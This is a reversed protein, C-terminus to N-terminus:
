TRSSTQSYCEYTEVLVLKCDTEKKMILSTVESFGREVLYSSPFAMLLKQVTAWLAPYLISIQKQIWFKHYGQEFM